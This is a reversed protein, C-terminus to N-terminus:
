RQLSLEKVLDYKKDKLKNYAKNRKELVETLEKKGKEIDEELQDKLEQVSESSEWEEVEGKDNIFQHVNTVEDMAQNMQELIETGHAAMNTYTRYRVYEDYLGDRRIVDEKEALCKSCYGTKNILKKDTYGYKNKECDENKCERQKQLYQRVQSMTDTLKSKKVKGFKKQEWLFGDEDEWIEGVKRKKDSKKVDTMSLKTEKEYEGTHVMDALKRRTPHMFKKDFEKKDAM